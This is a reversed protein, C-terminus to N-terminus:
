RTEHERRAVLEILQRGDRSSTLWDQVLTFLAPSKMIQSPLGPILLHWGALNFARAVAEATEVSCASRQHLVNNITKQAVKSRAALQHESWERLDLLERLNRAITERTNQNLKRAMDARYDGPQPIPSKVALYIM